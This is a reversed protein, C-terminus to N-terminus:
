TAACWSSASRRGPSSTAPPPRAPSAAAARRCRSWARRPAAGRVARRGHAATFGSVSLPVSARLLRPEGTALTPATPPLGLGRALAAPGDVSRQAAVAVRPARRQRRVPRRQWGPRHQAGALRRRPGGQGLPAPARARRADDRDADRRRAAGQRLELRLRRRGGAQRRHLGPQREHRRRHRQARRAPGRRPDPHRGAQAPLKAAGLRRPGQVAGAQTGQFVTLAEGVM